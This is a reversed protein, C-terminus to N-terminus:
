YKYGDDFLLKHDDYGNVIIDLARSNVHDNKVEELRKLMVPYFDAVRGYVALSEASDLYSFYNSGCLPVFPIALYETLVLLPARDIVSVLHEIGEEIATNYMGRYLQLAASAGNKRYQVPVAVTGIDWCSEFDMINHDTRIGEPTLNLPSDPSSLDNITKLGASSNRIVRLVGIPEKAERDVTIFFISSQEYPGYENQMFEANNSGFTYEFVQREVQRGIDSYKNNGSLRYSVFREHTEFNKSDILDVTLEKVDDDSFDYRYTPGPYPREIERM